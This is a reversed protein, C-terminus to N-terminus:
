KFLEDYPKNLISCIKNAEEVKFPRRGTEKLNYSTLAIGLEKSFRDQSYGNKERAEVLKYNKM